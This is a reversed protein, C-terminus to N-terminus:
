YYAFLGESFIESKRIRDFVGIIFIFGMDACAKSRNGLLEAFFIFTKTNRQLIADYGAQAHTGRILHQRHVLPSTLSARHVPSNM